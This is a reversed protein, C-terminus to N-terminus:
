AAVPSSSGPATGAPLVLAPTRIALAAAGAPIRYPVVPITVAMDPVVIAASDKSVATGKTHRAPTAQTDLAIGGVILAVAPLAACVRRWPVTITYVPVSKVMSDGRTGREPEVTLPYGVLVLDSYRHVPWRESGM